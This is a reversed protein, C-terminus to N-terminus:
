FVFQLGDVSVDHAKVCDQITCINPLSLPSSPPTFAPANERDRPRCTGITTTLIRASYCVEICIYIFACDM